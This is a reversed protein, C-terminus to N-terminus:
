TATVTREAAVPVEYVTSTTNTTRTPGLEEDNTAALTVEAGVAELEAAALRLRTVTEALELLITSRVRNRCFGVSAIRVVLVVKTATDDEPDWTVTSKGVDSTPLM